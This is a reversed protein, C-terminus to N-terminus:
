NSPSGLRSGANSVSASCSRGDTRSFERQPDYGVRDARLREDLLADAVDISPLPGGRERVARRLTALLRPESDITEVDHM